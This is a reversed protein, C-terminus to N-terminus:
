AKLKFKIPECYHYSILTFDDKRIDAIKTGLPADLHMRPKKASIQETQKLYVEANELHEEYIHVDGLAMTLNGPRMGVENAIAMLWAAGFVADSPLGIMTDVSRQNWLMNLTRTGDDNVSTHFQYFYHCCPLSLEELRDPRWGTIIMRRDDPNTKLTEILNEIQNVGNFDLWAKGYDLELHGDEDAWTKWYNCGFEEFEKVSSAGNLMAVLEGLVGKTFMKRGMLIPFENNVNGCELMEGFISKTIGNRGEKTEGTSLVKQVLAKYNKEFQIM